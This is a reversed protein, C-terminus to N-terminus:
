QAFNLVCGESMCTDCIHRSCIFDVALVIYKGTASNIGTSASTSIVAYVFNDRSEVSGHTVNVCAQVSGNNESVNTTLGMITIVPDIFLLYIIYCLFHYPFYSQTNRSWCMINSTMMLARVYYHNLKDLIILHM